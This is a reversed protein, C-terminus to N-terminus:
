RDIKKDRERRPEDGRVEDAHAERPRHASEKSTTGAMTLEAAGPGPPPSFRTMELKLSIAEWTMPSLLTLM